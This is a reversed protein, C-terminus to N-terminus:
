TRTMRWVDVVPVAIMAWALLFALWPFSQPLSTRVAEAGQPLARLAHWMFVVLGLAVGSWGIAATTRSPWVPRDERDHLVIATAGTIMLAAVSMPAIIPGWWPLPILFLVDWDLLSRPWPSSIALFVYYFIDWVGFAILAYAISTRRNRGALWGVTFLMLMTAVERVIEVAGLADNRPLPNFQYPNVRGVLMRLYLVTAAEMWAMAVGFLAVMWWRKRERM